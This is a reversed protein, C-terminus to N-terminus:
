SRDEMQRDFAQKILFMIYDLQDVSSISVDVDGSALHGINIMDRCWRRPDNIDSFSLNLSLLLRKAQPVISVFITRLKYAIYYKTIQESVSVDLSQIRRRLQQFLEIMEGTLYHHDALTWDTNRRPPIEQSIGHHPWIKCAKELLIGARDVITTEDWQEAERLSENLRLPSERFGGEMRQKDIFTSNSLESNYGTLTLNGITHLYKDHVERWDEGLEAQWEESLTQPM